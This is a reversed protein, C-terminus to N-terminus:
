NSYNSILISENDLANKQGSNIIMRVVLILISTGLQYVAFHVLGKITKGRSFQCRASQLGKPGAGIRCTTEIMISINTIRGIGM